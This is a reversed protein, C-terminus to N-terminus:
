VAFLAVCIYFPNRWLCVLLALRKVLVAPSFQCAMAVVERFPWLLLAAAVVSIFSIHVVVPGKGNNLALLRM